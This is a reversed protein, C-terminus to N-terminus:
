TSSSTWKRGGQLRLANLTVILSSSAMAVAAILPTVLGLIAIPVAVVNYLASFTLNELVRKRAAKAVDLMEVVPALSEGQIVIDSAAQSVDIASGPSASVYASALAAADNLGDGLM